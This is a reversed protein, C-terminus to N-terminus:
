VHKSKVRWILSLLIMLYLIWDLYGYKMFFTPPEDTIPIKATGYWEQELPSKLVVKGDQLIVSSQGTNTARILPTRNEVARAWNMTGHQFPEFTQGFWSDNTINVLFDAGLMAGKRSFSDYLSEYCIQPAAKFSQGATRFEKIEPGKGRGFSSVFPVLKYLFPFTEGFPLYEGFALLESKRYAPGALVGSDNFVFLGNYVKQKEIDRSYAGTILARKWSSIKERLHLQRPRSLFEVDLYDPLATEPWVILQAEPHQALAEDTLKIYQNLVVEQLQNEGTNSNRNGLDGAIKEFQGINAQVILVTLFRDTKLLPRLFAGWLNLVFFGLVGLGILSWAKTRQTKVLWIGTAFLANFLFFLSSLGQFGVLEALQSIELKSFLVGYGLHWPFIMPWFREVLGQILACLFFFAAASSAGSKFASKSHLWRALVLSFPIHLHMFACFLFLAAGSVVWPLHGFDHATHAVWHFGIFSLVFQTLWAKWFVKKLSKEELLSFWLPIWCFTIAWSAFPPYSTGILVGSLLPFFELRFLKLRQFFNTV